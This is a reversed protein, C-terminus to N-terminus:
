SDSLFQVVNDGTKDYAACNYSFSCKSLGANPAHGQFDSLITTPFSTTRYAM